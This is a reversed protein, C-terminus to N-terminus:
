SPRFSLSHSVMGVVVLALGALDIVSVSTGPIILLGGILAFVVEGAQTAEVAALRHMDNRVWDTATFFLTTAVVGSAIAVIMAQISQQPSPLGAIVIRYTSLSAWLPMSAITMGLTRQYADLRGECLNMMKRNGLPYAFAAVIVPIMGSLLGRLPVHTSQSWEIVGIGALMILSIGVSRAPIGRVGRATGHEPGKPTNLFPSMLAGAIITFQWTSAVLWAPSYTAAFCLPAYFLGFGITSWFLWQLPHRRMEIWLAGTGRRIVVLALLLPIMFIYRLSASWIWSGGGLSMRQNLVFSSAFFFSSLLGLLVAKM